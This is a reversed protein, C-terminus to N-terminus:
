GAPARSSTMRALSVVRPFGFDESETVNRLLLGRGLQLVSCATGKTVVPNEEKGYMTKEDVVFQEYTLNTTQPTYM